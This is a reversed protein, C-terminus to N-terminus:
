FFSFFGGMSGLSVVVYWGVTLGFPLLYVMRPMPDGEDAQSNGTSEKAAQGLRVISALWTVINALLLIVAVIPNDGFFANSRVFPPANVIFWLWCIPGGLWAFHLVAYAVKVLFKPPYSNFMRGVLYVWPLILLMSYIGGTLAYRRVDMGRHRAIIACVLSAVPAFLVGFLILQLVVILTSFSGYFVLELM